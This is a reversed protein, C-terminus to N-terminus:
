AAYLKDTAVGVHGVPVALEVVQPLTNSAPALQAIVMIGPLVGVDSPVLGQELPVAGRGPRTWTLASLAAVTELSTTM